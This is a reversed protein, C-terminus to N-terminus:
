GTLKRVETELVSIKAKLVSNGKQIKDQIKDIRTNVETIQKQRTDAKGQIKNMKTELRDLQNIIM